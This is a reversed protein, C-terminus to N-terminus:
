AAHKKHGKKFLLSFLAFALGISAGLIGATLPTFVTEVKEAEVDGSLILVAKIDKAELDGCALVGTNLSGNIQAEGTGMFFAGGNEMSLNECGIVLAGGQSLNVTEGQVIGVGGQNITVEKAEIKGAGGQEIYVTEATIMQAGGAMLQVNKANVSTLMEESVEVNDQEFEAAEAANEVAEEPVKIEDSM